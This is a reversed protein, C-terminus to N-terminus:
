KNKHKNSYTYRITRYKNILAKEEENLSDVFDKKMKITRQESIIWFVCLGILFCWSLAGLIMGIISCAIEVGEPLEVLLPM